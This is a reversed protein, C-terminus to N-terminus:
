NFGADFSYMYKQANAKKIYTKFLKNKFQFIIAKYSKTTKTLHTQIKSLQFLLLSSAGLEHESRAELNRSERKSSM